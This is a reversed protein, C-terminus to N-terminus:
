LSNVQYLYLRFDAVDELCDVKLLAQQAERTIRQSHPTMSLLNQIQRKDDLTFSVQLEIADVLTFRKDLYDHHKETDYQRIESYVLKRLAMLHEPGPGVFLVFGSPKVVRLFEENEVRSFVSLVLDFAADAYPMRASSAVAWEFQKYHSALQIAPKSIDFGYGNLTFDPTCRQLQTLYYGEGCGADLVTKSDSRQILEAMKKVLPQYYGANLFERRGAVMAADDGPQTSRKHQALLLNVYGKKHRDFSHGQECRLIKSKEDAHEFLAQQCVPCIYM